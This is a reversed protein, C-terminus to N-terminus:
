GVYSESLVGAFKEISSSMSVANFNITNHLKECNLNSKKPINHVTKIQDLSVPVILNTPAKIKEAVARTLDLRSWVEGGCLNFLGRAGNKQLLFVAEVLDEVFLPSFFQDFAVRVEELKSLTSFMRDLLSNNGKVLDFIHGCRIILFNGGKIEAIKKELIEKQRGYENIPNTESTEKYNGEVGNFVYASSLLIPVIDLRILSQALELTGLVNCLFSSSREQECFAPSACAATILAYAYEGRKIKLPTLDPSFLDIKKSDSYKYHTGITDPYFHRYANFFARGILSECGIIITKPPKDSMAFLSSHIKLIHSSSFNCGDIL